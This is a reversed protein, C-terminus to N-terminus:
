AYLGQAQVYALVSRPVLETADQRRALRDRVESSSVQALPPGVTGPAPHGARNLVLLCSLQRIREPQKWQPLDKVLDSGIVWVFSHEPLRRALYELTEVTWGEGGVDREVTSTKLWGSAEACLAECMQVRHEFSAMAKGFPHVFAPVLWVEDVGQTQHVYHAALSHGVHPPDFAGGILAINV